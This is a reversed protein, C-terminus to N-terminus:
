DWNAEIEKLEDLLMERNEPTDPLKKEKAGSVMRLTGEEALIRISGIDYLVECHRYKGIM